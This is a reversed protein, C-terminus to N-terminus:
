DAPGIISRQEETAEAILERLKSIRFTTVKRIEVGSFKLDDWESPAPIAESAYAGGGAGGELYTQVYSIAGAGPNRRAAGSVACAIKGARSADLGDDMLERFLWLAIMDDPDFLRARGPTTEPACPFRGGAVHENFRDRDIRAVQCAAVATLKPIM